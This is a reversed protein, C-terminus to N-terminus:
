TNDHRDETLKKCTMKGYPDRTVIGFYCSGWMIDRLADRKDREVTIDRLADREVPRNSELFDIYSVAYTAGRADQHLKSAAVVFVSPRPTTICELYVHKYWTMDLHVSIQGSHYRASFSVGCIRSEPTNVFVAIRAGSVEVYKSVVTLLCRQAIIETISRIGSRIFPSSSNSFSSSSSSNSFSSSRPMRKQREEVKNAVVDFREHLRVGLGRPLRETGIMHCVFAHLKRKERQESLEYIGTKRCFEAITKDLFLNDFLLDRAGPTGSIGLRAMARVAAIHDNSTIDNSYTM